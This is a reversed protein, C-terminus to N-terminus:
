RDGDVDEEREHDDKSQDGSAIAEPVSQARLIRLSVRRQNSNDDLRSSYIRRKTQNINNRKRPIRIHLIQKQRHKTLDHHTELREVAYLTTLSM